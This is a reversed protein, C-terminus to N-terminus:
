SSEKKQNGHKREDKETNDFSRRTPRPTKSFFLSFSIDVPVQIQSSHFHYCLTSKGVANKFLQWHYTGSNLSFHEKILYM